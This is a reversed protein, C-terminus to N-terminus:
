DTTPAEVGLLVREEDTLSKWWSMVAAVEQGEPSTALEHVEAATLAVSEFRPTRGARQEDHVCRIEPCRCRLGAINTGKGVSEIVAVQGNGTPTGVAMAKVEAFSLIEHGDGPDVDDVLDEPDYPTLQQTWPGDPQNAYVWARAAAAVANGLAIATDPGVDGDGIEPFHRKIVAWVADGGEHIVSRARREMEADHDAWRALDYSHRFCQERVAQVIKPAMEGIRQFEHVQVYNGPDSDQDGPGWSFDGVAGVVGGGNDLTCVGSGVTVAAHMEGDSQRPFSPGCYILMTGGGSNDIDAQVGLARIAEALKVMDIVNPQRGEDYADRLDEVEIQTFGVAPFLDPELGGAVRWLEGDSPLALDLRRALKGRETLLDLVRNYREKIAGM